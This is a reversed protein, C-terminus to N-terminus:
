EVVSGDALLFGKEVLHKVILRANEEPTVGVTKLTIEPNIPTEYPDDV